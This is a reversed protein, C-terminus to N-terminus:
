IHILSLDVNRDDGAIQEQISQEVRELDDPHVIGKFSYGTLNKFEDLNKCGFMELLIDNAYLIKEDEDARYVFFGGPMRQTLKEIVFPNDWHEGDEESFNTYPM